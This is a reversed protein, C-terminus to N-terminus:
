WYISFISYIKIQFCGVLIIDTFNPKNICRQNAQKKFFFLIVTYVHIIIEINYIKKKEASVESWYLTNSFDM